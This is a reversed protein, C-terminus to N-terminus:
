VSRYYYLTKVTLYGNMVDDDEIKLTCRETTPMKFFPEESLDVYKLLNVEAGSALRKKIYPEDYKTSLMLTTSDYVISHNLACKGYLKGSEGILSIVPNVTVGRYSIEFAAPLHGQPEIIAEFEKVALPALYAEDIYCDFFRFCKDGMGLTDVDPSVPLYWPSLYLFSAPVELYGAKTLETKGMSQVEVHAYYQIEGDERGYTVIDDYELSKSQMEMYHPVGYILYLKKAKMCWDVFDKYYAYAARDVFNLKCSMARQSNGKSSVRFFGEGLDAFNDSFDLGLGSPETLFIGKENNLGIREGTENELYFRRM